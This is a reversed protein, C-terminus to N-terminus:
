PCQMTQLNIWEMVMWLLRTDMAAIILRWRTTSIDYYDFIETPYQNAKIAQLIGNAPVRSVSPDKTILEIAIISKRDGHSGALLSKDYDLQLCSVVGKFWSNRFLPYSLWCRIHTCLMFHFWKLFTQCIACHPMMSTYMYARSTCPLGVFSGLVPVLM